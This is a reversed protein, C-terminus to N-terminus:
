WTLKKAMQQRQRKNAYIKMDDKALKNKKKPLAEKIIKNPRPRGGMESYRDKYISNTRNSSEIVSSNMRQIRAEDEKTFNLKSKKKPTM